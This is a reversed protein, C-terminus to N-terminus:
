EHNNQPKFPIFFIFTAGKNIESQVEIRGNHKDIIAKVYSLGLGFGKANHLNGTPVRYLKDFIKKQNAQSIGIGNDSIEVQIGNPKNRTRITIEPRDFSYKNANDLLNFVVSAMHFKDAKVMPNHAEFVPTIVGDKQEVQMKIKAIANNVVEHMNIVEPKLELAGKDIIATQLIKEAMSGLRSNEEDIVGIYSDYLSIDRPIDDDRLAQCALSITSIPTKFEHTMNNIFDNKMESLRKQRFITHVTYYFAYVLIAILLISLILMTAMQSLLYAHSKPFYINLYVPERFIDRPYLDYSFLSEKVEEEYQERSLYSFTRYPPSMIGFVFPTELGKKKLHHTILSDLYETSEHLPAIEEQEPGILDLFLNTLVASRSLLRQLEEKRLLSEDFSYERGFGGSAQFASEKEEFPYQEENDALVKKLVYLTDVLDSIDRASHFRDQLRRMVQQKEIEITINSMAGDVSEEFSIQRTEIGTRIWHHQLVILGLMSTAALIIISVISRKNM